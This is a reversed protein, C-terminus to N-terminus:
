LEHLLLMEKDWAGLIQWFFGFPSQVLLIPDLKKEKKKFDKEEAIVYFVPKENTVKKTMESYEKMIEIAEKPFTPVFLHSKKMVLKYKDLLNDIKEDNTNPFKNYFEFVSKYKKRNELRQIFGEIQDKAFRQNSLRNKDKFLEIKEDLKECSFPTPITELEKLVSIPKESKRPDVPHGLSDVTLTMDSSLWARNVTEVQGAFDEYFDYMSKEIEEDTSSVYGENMIKRLKPLHKMYLQLMEEAKEAETKGFFFGRLKKSVGM